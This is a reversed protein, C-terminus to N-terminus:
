YSISSKAKKQEITGLDNTRNYYNQEDSYEQPINM